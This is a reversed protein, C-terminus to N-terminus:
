KEPDGDKKFFETFRPDDITEGAVVKKFIDESIGCTMCVDLRVGCATLVNTIGCYKCVKTLEKTM